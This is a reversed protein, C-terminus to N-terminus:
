RKDKIKKVQHEHTDNLFEALTKAVNITLKAHREAPKYNTAHADSMKNRLGALGFVISSLGTLIQKLVNDIDKCSPDLKM